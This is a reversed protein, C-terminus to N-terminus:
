RGSDEQPGALRRSHAVQLANELRKAESRVVDLGLPTISYFRRPKGRGDGPDRPETELIWESKLFRNILRYLSGIEPAIAGDSDREVAKMIGYGHCPGEALVLLVHFETASLPLLKQLNVHM